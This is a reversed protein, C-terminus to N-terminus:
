LFRCTPPELNNRRCLALAQVDGMLAQFRLFVEKPHSLAISAYGAPDKLEGIQEVLKPHRLGVPRRALVVVETVEPDALLQALLEKGVLGTAGVVLVRRGKM